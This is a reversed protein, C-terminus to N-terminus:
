YTERLTLVSGDAQVSCASLSHTMIDLRTGVMTEAAIGGNTATVDLVLRQAQDTDKIGLSDYVPVCFLSYCNVFQQYTLCPAISKNGMLQCAMRYYQYARVQYQALTLDLPLQPIANTGYRM